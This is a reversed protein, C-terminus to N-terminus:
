SRMDDSVDKGESLKRLTEKLQKLPTPKTLFMNAGSMMTEHQMSASLVATLIIITAPPLKKKREFHRMERTATLGDMVPMSIDVVLNAKDRKAMILSFPRSWGMVVADYRDNKFKELADQGNVATQYKFGASKVCM